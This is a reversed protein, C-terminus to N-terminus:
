VAGEAVMATMTQTSPGRNRQREIRRELMRAAQTLIFCITFYTLALISFVQVPKVLLTNNVQIAAFTFENIAIIYGLSTEKILSVFQSLIGPLTNYLAQPLIILRLCRIRSLGLATGAEMQGKPLAQIGARIVDSLYASEYVVLAGVLTSFGSIAHGVLAPLAFYSWFVVMLFPTGRIVQTLTFSGARLWTKQSTRCIAVSLACPFALALGMMALLFTAVLGGLPGNPYQGVLFLLWNDRVIQIM